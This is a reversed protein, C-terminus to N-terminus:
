ESKVNMCKRGKTDGLARAKKNQDASAPVIDTICTEDGLRVVALFSEITNQDSPNQFKNLRVIMAVPKAGEGKKEMRWEIKDGMMFDMVSGLASRFPLLTEKGKP